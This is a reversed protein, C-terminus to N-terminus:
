VWKKLGAAASRFHFDSKFQALKVETNCILAFHLFNSFMINFRSNILFIAGSKFTLNQSSKSLGILSLANSLFNAFDGLNADFARFRIKVVTSFCREILLHITGQLELCTFKICRLKLKLHPSTM